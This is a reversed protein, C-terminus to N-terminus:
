EGSSGFGNKGRETDSLTDVSIIESDWYQRLIAQAIRQNLLYKKIDEEIAIIINDTRVLKGHFVTEKHDDWFWQLVRHRIPFQIEGRYHQDICGFENALVFPKKSFSSRPVVEFYFGKPPEVEVGLLIHWLGNGKYEYDCATLDFGSDSAHAKSFTAKERTFKVKTKM